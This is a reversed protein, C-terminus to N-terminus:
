QAAALDQLYQRARTWRFDLRAAGSQGNWHYDEPVFLLRARSKGKTQLERDAILRRAQKSAPDRMIAIWQNVFASTRDNPRFAISGQGMLPAVLRDASTALGSIPQRRWTELEAAYHDRKEHNFHEALMLNYLLSAGYMTTSFALAHELQRRMHVPLDLSAVGDLTEIHRARETHSMLFGLLTARKEIISCRDKIWAAEDLTLTFGHQDDDAVVPLEEWCQEGEAMRDLVEGIGARELGATRIGWAGLGSWYVSSPMRKLKAGAEAGILNTTDATKPLSKLREMLAVEGDRLRKRRDRSKLDLSRFIHPLFIFYRLRTQVTSTGPFLLDSFGDRIAGLGLEDRAESESLSGILTQVADAEAKGFLIWGLTSM